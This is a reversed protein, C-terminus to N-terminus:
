SAEPTTALIDDIVLQQEAFAARDDQLRWARATGTGERWSPVIIYTYWPWSHDRDFMSPLAPHDPHSHYFGVIDLGMQRATAEALRITDAEIVYRRTREDARENQVAFASSIVRDDGADVGLLVGCCEEPYAEAAHAAIDHLTAAAIRVSSM